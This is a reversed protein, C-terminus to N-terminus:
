PRDHPRPDDAHLHRNWLDRPGAPVLTRLGPDHRAPEEPQVPRELPRASPPQSPRTTAEALRVQKPYQPKRKLLRRLEREAEARRGRSVLWQGSDSVFLRAVVVFAAPVIATAYM